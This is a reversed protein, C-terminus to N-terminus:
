LRERQIPMSMCRPGGRGRVLESGEIVTVKINNKTLIDNTIENRNYTIVHGPSIAFTNTSDNWQERASIVKNNGGSEIINVGRIKLAKALALDLRDENNYHLQKMKDVTITVVEIDKLINPFIIFKDYDLMTFVTDLHMFARVHPIKMALVKKIGSDMTLLNYSIKDIAERSTRESFGILVCEDNLVLIDGGELSMRETKNDYYVNDPKLNEKYTFIERVLMSERRRIDTKMKSYSIGRKIVAGVDRMFYLNPLPKFYYSYKDEMYDSLYSKDLKFEDEGLGSILYKTLSKNDQSLLFERLASIVYDDKNVESLVLEILENKAQKISIIEELLDSLYLVEVGNSKLTAVFSDHETKMRNMWPIDEFLVENLEEPVLRDIELGPRHLMIKKLKGIESNIFLESM